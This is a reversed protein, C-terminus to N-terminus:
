PTSRRWIECRSFRLRPWCQTWVAGGAGYEINMAISVTLTRIQNRIIFVIKSVFAKCTKLHINQYSKSCPKSYKFVQYGGQTALVISSTTNACFSRRLRRARFDWHHHHWAGLETLFLRSAKSSDMGLVTCKNGEPKPLKWSLLKFIFICIFTIHRIGVEATKESMGAASIAYRDLQEWHSGYSWCQSPKLCAGTRNLDHQTAMEASNGPFPPIGTCSYGLCGWYNGLIRYRGPLHYNCVEAAWSPNKFGPKRLVLLRIGHELSYQTLTNSYMSMSILRIMRIALVKQSHSHLWFSGDDLM